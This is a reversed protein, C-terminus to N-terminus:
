QVKGEDRLKDIEQGLRYGSDTVIREVVALWDHMSGVEARLQANEQTLLRIREQAQADTSPKLSQGWMGELPYGHQIKLKTTHVWGWTAALSIVIAGGIIGPLMEAWVYADM